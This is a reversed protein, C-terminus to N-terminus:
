YLFQWLMNSLEKAHYLNNEMHYEVKMGLLSFNTRAFQTRGAFFSVYSVIKNNKYFNFVEIGDM